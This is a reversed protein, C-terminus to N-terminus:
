TLKNLFVIDKYKNTGELSLKVITGERSYPEISLRTRYKEVQNEMNLLQFYIKKGIANTPLTDIKSEFSMLTGMFEFKPGFSITTDTHQIINKKTSLKFKDDDLPTISFERNYINVEDSHLILEVPKLPYYSITKSFGKMFYDTSFDLEQLTRRIVSRSSLIAIQNDLNKNGPMLGFGQFFDDAGPALAQDGEEILMTSSVYYTPPTYKLYLYGAALSLILTVLPIYWRRIILLLLPRIKVIEEQRPMTPNSITTQQQDM